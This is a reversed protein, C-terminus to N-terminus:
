RRKFDIIFIVTLILALSFWTISYELHRNPISRIDFATKMGSMMDDPKSLLILYPAVKLGTYSSIDKYNLSFWENKLMNNSPGMISGKYLDVLRGEIEKKTISINSDRKKESWGLSILIVSRDEMILPVLTEYGPKNGLLRYYYIIKPSFFGEVRIKKYKYFPFQSSYYIDIIEKNEKITEIIQNKHQLRFIQWVSLGLLISLMACFLIIKKM